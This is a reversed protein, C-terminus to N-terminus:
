FYAYSYCWICEAPEYVYIYTYYRERDRHRDRGIHRHTYCYIIFSTMMLKLLTPIYISNTSFLLILIICIYYEHM